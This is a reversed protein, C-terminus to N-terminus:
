FEIDELKFVPGDACVRYFGDGGAKRVACGFCIGFGCAMVSEVSAWSDISTYKKLVNLMSEPGCAFVVKDLAPDIYETALGKLGSSGDETVITVNFPKIMECLERPPSVKVGWIFRKFKSKQAFFYLPALGSGGAVLTADEFEPFSNGLPGLMDLLEGPQKQSLLTTGKGVLLILFWVSQNDVNFISFPRSLFPEIGDKVRIQFFQGPKLYSGWKNEVKLLFYRDDFKKNELISSRLLEM